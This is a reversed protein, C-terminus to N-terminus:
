PDNSLWFQQPSIAPDASRGTAGFSAWNETSLHPCIHSLAFLYVFYMLICSIRLSINCYTVYIHWINSIIGEVELCFDVYILMNWKKNKINTNLLTRKSDCILGQPVAVREHWRHHGHLGAQRVLAVTQFDPLIPTMRWSPCSLLFPLCTSSHFRTWRCSVLKRIEEFYDLSLGACCTIVVHACVLIILVRCLLPTAFYIM